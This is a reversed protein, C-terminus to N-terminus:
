VHSSSVIRVSLVAAVSFVEKLHDVRHIICDLLCGAASEVDSGSSSAVDRSM